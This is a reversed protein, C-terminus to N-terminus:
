TFLLLSGWGGIGLNNQIIFLFSIIFYIPGRMINFVTFNIEACNLQIKLQIYEKMQHGKQAKLVVAIVVYSIFSLKNHLWTHTVM